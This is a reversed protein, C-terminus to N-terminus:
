TVCTAPSSWGPYKRSSSSGFMCVSSCHMAALIRLNCKRRPDDEVLGHRDAVELLLDTVEKVPSGYAVGIKVVIRVAENSLTWNTVNQEIFTSNPILTEIGNADRIHSSRVGIDLVRGRIGGVEVLDGPRFPREFLLMLGSILNKLLNQMGFGAGIALAGGMFAFITLPIRVVMM